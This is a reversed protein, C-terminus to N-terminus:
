TYITKTKTTPIIAELLPRTNFLEDNLTERVGLAGVKGFRLNKDSACTSNKELYHIVM